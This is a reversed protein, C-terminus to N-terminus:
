APADSIPVGAELTKHVPCKSAVAMIRERQVDTLEDGILEIRLEIKEVPDHGHGTPFVRVVARELPWDKRSVYSYITQAVCGALATYLYTFPNPGKGSGGPVEGAQDVILTHRHHPPAPTVDTAYGDGTITATVAATVATTNM